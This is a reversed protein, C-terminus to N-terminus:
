SKEKGVYYYSYASPVNSFHQQFPLFKSGGSCHIHFSHWSSVFAYTDEPIINYFLSVETFYDMKLKNDIFKFNHFFFMLSSENNDTFSRANEKIYM